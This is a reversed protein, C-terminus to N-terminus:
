SSREEEEEEEAEEQEGAALDVEAVYTERRVNV